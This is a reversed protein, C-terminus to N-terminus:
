KLSLPVRSTLSPYALNLSLYEWHHLVQISLSLTSALQRLLTYLHKNTGYFVPKIAGCLTMPNGATISLILKRICNVFNIVTIEKEMAIINVM